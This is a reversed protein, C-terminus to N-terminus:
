WGAAPVNNNLTYFDGSEVDQIIVADPVPAGSSQLQALEDLTMAPIGFTLMPPPNIPFVQYGIPNVGTPEANAAVPEVVAANAGVLAGADATIEPVPPAAAEKACGAIVTALILLGATLTFIFKKM